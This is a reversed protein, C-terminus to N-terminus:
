QNTIKENKVVKGGMMVFKVRQLESIDKLPDGKVAIIDALKGIEISGIEKDKNLLQANVITGAQIAQMPTMGIKILEGFERASYNAPWGIFDTGVGIKLGKKVGSRLKEYMGARSDNALAIAKALAKSDALKEKFYLDITLTPILYTGHEVMLDIAEEDMYSGHEISRVGAKVAQKIGETAHAHAMVPVDRRGAEEVAMKLEEPSFHVNQPNDGTTMFAGTVLIKIWDSGNKIETRVAKRIEEPGDVILGDAIIKQEYSIFNIDGGGGTVSLYHGAGYIHPGVFLGKNIANRIELNAYGVDEDGAVRVATWGESLLDQLAKLGTLTKAASSARLHGVQYDDSSNDPHVHADILGPLITYEGLDIITFGNGYKDLHLNEKNEIAIIKNDSIIIAPNTIVKGTGDILNKALLVKKQSLAHISLLLFACISLVLKM